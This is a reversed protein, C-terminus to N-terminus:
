RKGLINYVEFFSIIFKSFKNSSKIVFSVSNLTFVQFLAIQFIEGDKFQKIEVPTLKVKLEKSIDEALKKNSTGSILKLHKKNAM